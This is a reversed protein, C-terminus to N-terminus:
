TPSSTLAHYRVWEDPKLIAFLGARRCRGALKLLAKDKTVLVAARSDRAAELFKQDDADSCRPLPAWVGADTSNTSTTGTGIGSANDGGHPLCSIVRDFADRSRAQRAADLAFCPYALVLMWEARCDARTVAQVTGDELAQTLLAWRADAYVFLDLCVNTDLVLRNPIM